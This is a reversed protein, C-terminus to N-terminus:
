CSPGPGSIWAGLLRFGRAGFPFDKAGFGLLPGMARFRRLGSVM